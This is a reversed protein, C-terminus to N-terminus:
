VIPTLHLTSLHGIISSVFLHDIQRCYNIRIVIVDSIHYTFIRKGSLNSESVTCCFLWVPMTTMLSSPGSCGPTPCSTQPHFELQCPCWSGTINLHRATFSCRIGSPIRLSRTWPYLCHVWSFSRDSWSIFYLFFPAGIACTSLVLNLNIWYFDYMFSSMFTIVHHLLIPHEIAYVM